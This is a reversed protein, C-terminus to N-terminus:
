KGMEKRKAIEEVKARMDWKGKSSKDDAKPERADSSTRKTLNLKTLNLKTLNLAIGDSYPILITQYGIYVTDKEDLVKDKLWQPLDEFERRMGEQVKPSKNNQNKIGNKLVVWGIEYFAKADETFRNFLKKIMELDFGTDLAIRKLPIQYVGILNTNPNTLLYLFLLKESPDLQAVWADDWFATNIYRQKAM